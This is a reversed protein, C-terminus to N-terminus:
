LGENGVSTRGFHMSAFKRDAYWRIGEWLALNNGRLSLFAHNSASFKYVAHRKDDIFVAAAIPISGHWAVVVIGSGNLMFCHHLNQFFSLPQPPVGHKQRTQCHLEYYTQMAEKST